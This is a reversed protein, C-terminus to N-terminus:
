IPSSRSSFSPGSNRKGLTLDRFEGWIGGRQIGGQTVHIFTGPNRLGVKHTVGSGSVM